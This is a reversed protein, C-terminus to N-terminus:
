VDDHGFGIRGPTMQSAEHVLLRQYLHDLSNVSADSRHQLGAPERKEEAAVTRGQQTGDRRTAVNVSAGSQEEDISVFVCCGHFLRHGTLSRVHLDRQQEAHSSLV